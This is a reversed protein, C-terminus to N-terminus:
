NAQSTRPVKTSPTKPKRLPPAPVSHTLVIHRSIPHLQTHVHFIFRFVIADRLSNCDCQQSWTFRQPLWDSQLGQTRTATASFSPAVTTTRVFHINRLMDGYCSLIDFLLSLLYSGLLERSSGYGRIACSRGPFSSMNEQEAGWRTFCAHLYRVLGLFRVLGVVAPRGTWCLAFDGIMGGRSELCRSRGPMVAPGAEDHRAGKTDIM